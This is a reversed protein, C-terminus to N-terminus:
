ARLTLLNEVDRTFSGGHSIAFQMAESIPVRAADDFGVESASRDHIDRAYRRLVPQRQAGIVRRHHKLIAHRNAVELSQRDALPHLTAEIEVVRKTITLRRPEIRADQM